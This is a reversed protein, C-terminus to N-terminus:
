PPRDARATGFGPRPGSPRPGNLGPPLAPVSAPPQISLQLNRKVAPPGASLILLIFDTFVMLVTFEFKMAPPLTQGRPPGRKLKSLTM